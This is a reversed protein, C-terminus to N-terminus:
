SWSAVLAVAGTILLLLWMADKWGEEVGRQYATKDAKKKLATLKRIDSM